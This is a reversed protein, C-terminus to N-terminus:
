SFILTFMSVFTDSGTDDTYVKGAFFVRKNKGDAAAFSGFDIIDLKTLRNGAVEFFQAFLRNEKSTQPFHILQSFGLREAPEIEDRYLEEFTQIPQQGVPEWNGIPTRPTTIGQTTQVKNIPPLYKFNPVHSLRKDAFLSEIHNINGTQMGGARQSPVPANDTVDFSIFGTNLTFNKQDTSRYVQPSGLISLKQFNDLSSSMLGDTLSAFQSQRTVPELSTTRSGSFFEGNVVRITTNGVPRLERVFIRGSDDAEFTVHDQPLNCAELTFATAIDEARNGTGSVYTDSLAYAASSDGFSYFEARFNGEALQRRGEQTVLSDFIRSKQDLIGAM